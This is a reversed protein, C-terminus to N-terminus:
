RTVARWVDGHKRVRTIEIGSSELADAVPLGRGSIDILLHPAAEGSAILRVLRHLCGGGSRETETTEKM